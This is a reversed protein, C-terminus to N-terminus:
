IMARTGFFRTVSVDAKKTTVNSYTNCEDQDTERTKNDFFSFETDLNFEHYM